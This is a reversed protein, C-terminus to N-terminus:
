EKNRHRVENKISELIEKAYEKGGLGFALGGALAIMAVTGAVITQLLGPTIGLQTLAFILAFIYIACKAVAATFKEVKANALAVSNEIIKGVVRGAWIGVALVISAVILDPM